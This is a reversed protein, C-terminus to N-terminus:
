DSELVILVGLALLMLMVTQSQVVDQAIGTAASSAVEGTTAGIGCGIAGVEGEAWSFFDGPNGTNPCPDNVNAM